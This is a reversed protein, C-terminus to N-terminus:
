SPAYLQPTSCKVAVLSFPWCPFAESGTVGNLDYLLDTAALLKLTNVSYNRTALLSSNLDLQNEDL